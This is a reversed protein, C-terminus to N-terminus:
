IKWVMGKLVVEFTEKGSIESTQKLINIAHIVKQM